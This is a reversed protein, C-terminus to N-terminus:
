VNDIERMLDALTANVAGLTARILERGREAHARDVPVLVTAGEHGHIDDFKSPEDYWEWTQTARGKIVTDWLMFHGHPLALVWAVPGTGSIGTVDDNREARYWLASV